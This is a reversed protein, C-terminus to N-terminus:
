ARSRAACAPSVFRRRRVQVNTPPGSAGGGEVETLEADVALIITEDIDIRSGDADTATAFLQAQVQNRASVSPSELTINVGTLLTDELPQYDSYDTTYDEDEPAPEAATAAAAASLPCEGAAAIESADAVEQSLSPPVIVDDVLHLIGRGGCVPTDLGTPAGLAVDAVAGPVADDMTEVVLFNDPKSVRLTMPGEGTRFTYVTPTAYDDSAFKGPVIGADMIQPVTGM